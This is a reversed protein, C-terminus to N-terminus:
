PGERLRAALHARLGPGLEPDDLALDVFARAYSAPSGVDHRREGPLLPVAVVTGGDRLLAAIADTLQVEGGAGPATARLAGFIAPSLVYRAAAAWRSPATAAGPKEVLGRVPLVGDDGPDGVAVIGYRSVADPEVQEIAIAAVAGHAAFAEALRTVVTAGHGGGASLVADGLAVVFPGAVAGEACLVADGLGRQVPQRVALFSVPHGAHPDDFHDLIAGKGRRTIFCVRAIGCVALEEVVHGVVPARGVPLLEKPLARTLPALRTGLGAVPVVADTVLSRTAAM